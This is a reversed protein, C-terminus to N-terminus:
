LPEEERELTMEETDADEEAIVSPSVDWARRANFSNEYKSDSSAALAAEGVRPIHTCASLMNSRHAEM